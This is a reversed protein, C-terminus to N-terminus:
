AAPNSLYTWYSKATSWAEDFAFERAIALQRITSEGSMKYALLNDISTYTFNVGQQNYTANTGNLIINNMISFFNKDGGAIQTGTMYKFPMQATSDLLDQNTKSVPLGSPVCTFWYNNKDLDLSMGKIVGKALAQGVVGAGTQGMKSTLQNEFSQDKVGVPLTSGILMRAYNTFSLAAGSVKSNDGTKWGNVVQGKFSKYLNETITPTIDGKYDTGSYRVGKYRFYNGEKVEDDTAPTNYWFGGEGAANSAMPGFTSVIQGDESYLYDIFQIAADLKNKDNRIAGNVALGGTKTSRWSETFRFYEDAAITGNGDVDWKSVPTIVPAFYYGEPTGNPFDKHTVTSDEALFGALTQTQSYDYVMFYEDPINAKTALGSSTAFNSKGSYDAILGEKRLNNMNAMAEYFAKNTRADLINGAKDIYNYENRSTGGRVGYLQCALSVMDPTRDNQGSRPAIGGLTKGSGVLVSANTKICRLMAVLDDVDWCADNGIFVNARNASNFYAKGDKTFCVDIYARFLNILQTGTADKNAALAANMIDIINGSEGSYVSGAIANYAMGLATTANKAAALAAAYDKTIKQTDAGDATLADVTYNASGMFSTASTAAACAASFKADSGAADGNLLKKAWDHRIICYREIDDYGDFYPAVLIKQGEGTTTNMGDQLLSLYVVPNENLFNRFNPMYDLYSALNLIDTGSNAKSVAVSLDTTFLDVGAYKTENSGTQNETLLTNLNQSTQKGEYVDNWKINLDAGMQAWAPKMEGNSYAKTRNPLTIESGLDKFSTSTLLSNHGVALNLTVESTRKYADYNLSGDEKMIGFLDKGINDGPKEVKGPGDNGGGGCAAFSLAMTGAMAVSVAAVALKKFKNM